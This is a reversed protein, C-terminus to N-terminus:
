LMMTLGLIVVAHLCSDDYILYPLLALAFLSVWYLTGEEFVVTTLEM